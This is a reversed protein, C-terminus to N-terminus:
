AAKKDQIIIKKLDLEEPAAQHIAEILLLDDQIRKTRSDLNRAKKSEHPFFHTSARQSIHTSLAYIDDL